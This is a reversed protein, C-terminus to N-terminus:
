GDYRHLWLACVLAVFGALAGVGFAVRYGTETYVRVGDILEGTWYADLVAGMLTPFSAGGLFSAGNLTGLAIGSARDDFREQIMPYTLVVAGLLAGILFFVTAVAALPPNGVVAVLGLAATYVVTGGVVFETVRGTADVLRGLVPPGVVLGLGGLLTFTSATTVSVGYTQVLYPIGWLGILTLNVGSVCYLMVSAVLTWRDTLIRRLFTRIEAVSLRPREPVGEVKSLGAREPSDRVLLFTGVAGALGIGGLALMTTRWGAAAVAVAFPTTALIGGLGGVAFSLGNMTGFEDTRYWNACFRLMSVFVVSGGLGVLFRGALAGEYAGVLAFAIAGVNMVAAGAAATRRPGVRDVLVGTPVQMVAYVVFFMAHLTGLQAGTTDFAEMLQGSIVATSLRYVNVLLFSVALVGWLLWRRRYPNAWVDAGFRSPVSV